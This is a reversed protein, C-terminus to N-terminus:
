KSGYGDKEEKKLHKSEHQECFNAIQRLQSISLSEDCLVPVFDCSNGYEIIIGLEIKGYTTAQIVSWYGWEGKVFELKSKM